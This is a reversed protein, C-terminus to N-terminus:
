AWCEITSRRDGGQNSPTGCSRKGLAQLCERRLRAVCGVKIFRSAPLRQQPLDEM